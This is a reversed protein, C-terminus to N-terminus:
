EDVQHYRFGIGYITEIVMENVGLKVIKKRINKIHSDITKGLTDGDKKYSFDILQERSYVRGSKQMLLRLFSFEMSTLGVANDQYKLSASNKDLFLATVAPKGEIGVRKLIVKIRLMLEKVSFPKCVYDDVGAELGIIRDNEAKKATLMLIPIDSFERIERCCTVGDKVPLMVDLIIIDPLENKVTDVVNEGSHLIIPQYGENVLYNAIQATIRIEDEVVLVKIM